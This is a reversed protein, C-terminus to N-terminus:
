GKPRYVGTDPDIELTTILNPKAEPKAESQPAAATERQRRAEARQRLQARHARQSFFRLVMLAIILGAVATLIKTLM